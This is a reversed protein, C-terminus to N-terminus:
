FYKTNLIESFIVAKKIDFGRAIKSAESRTKSQSVGNIDQNLPEKLEMTGTKSNKEKQSSVESKTLNQEDIQEYAKKIDNKKNEIDEDSYAHQTDPSSQTQLNTNDEDAPWSANIYERDDQVPQTNSETKQKKKGLVSILPAGVAFAVILLLNLIDGVEM